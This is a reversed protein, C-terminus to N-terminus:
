RAMLLLARLYLLPRNKPASADVTEWAGSRWKRCMFVWLPVVVVLATM